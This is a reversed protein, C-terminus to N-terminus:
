HHDTRSSAMLIITNSIIKNKNGFLRGALTMLRDAVRLFLNLFLGRQDLNELWIQTSPYYIVEIDVLGLEDLANRLLVPDMIKLNHIALTAPDFFRQLLGNIGRFNPLSILLVGGPKLYKLHVGLIEKVNLFHEILGFSCVLDYQKSPINLFIDDEICKIDSCNLGNFRMLEEVKVEDLHFDILTPNMHCYKKLFISFKGPFGGLEICDGGSRVKETARKIFDHYCYKESILQIHKNSAWYNEWNDKTSLRNENM